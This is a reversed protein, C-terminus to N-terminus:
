EPTSAFLAVPTGSKKVGRFREQQSRVTSILIIRKGDGQFLEATGIKAIIGEAQCRNKLRECQLQYPTIVGIDEAPVELRLYTDAHRHTQIHSQWPVLLVKM